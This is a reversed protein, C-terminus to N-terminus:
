RIGYLACLRELTLRYFRVPKNEKIKIAQQANVGMM